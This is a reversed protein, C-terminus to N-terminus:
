FMSLKDRSCQRQVCPGCFRMSIFGRGFITVQTGGHRPGRQPLIAVLEPAQVYFYYITSRYQAENNTVALLAEGGEADDGTDGCRATVMEVVQGFWKTENETGDDCFCEVSKLATPGRRLIFVFAM